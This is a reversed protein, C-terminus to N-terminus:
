VDESTRESALFVISHVRCCGGGGGGCRTGKAAAGSAEAERLVGGFAAEMATRPAPPPRSAAAATRAAPPAAAKGRAAPPPIRPGSPGGSVVSPLPPPRHQQTPGLVSRQSGAGAARAQLSSRMRQAHVELVPAMRRSANPNPAPVGGALLRPLWLVSILLVFRTLCYLAHVPRCHTAPCGHVGVQRVCCSLRESGHRPHPTICPDAGAAAPQGALAPQGQRQRRRKRMMRWSLRQM